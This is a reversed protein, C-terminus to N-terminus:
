VSLNKFNWAFLLNCTERSCNRNRDAIMRWEHRVHAEKQWVDERGYSWAAQKKPCYNINVQLRPAPKFASCSKLHEGGVFMIWITSPFLSCWSTLISAGFFFCGISLLLKFPKIFGLFLPLLPNLSEVRCYSHLLECMGDGGGEM